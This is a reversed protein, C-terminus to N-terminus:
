NHCAGAGVGDIWDCAIGSAGYTSSRRCQAMGYNGELVATSPYGCYRYATTHNGNPYAVASGFDIEFAYTTAVTTAVSLRTSQNNAKTPWVVSANAGTQGTNDVMSPCTVQASTLNTTAGHGDILQFAGCLTEIKDRVANKSPAITTVGDWTSQDYATDSVTGSGFATFAGAGIKYGMVGNVEGIIWAYGTPTAITSTNAKGAIGYTGDTGETIGPTWTNTTTCLYEIKAQSDYYRSGATCTGPLTATNGTKQPITSDALSADLSDGSAATLANCNGSTCGWVDTIDGSGSGGSGIPPQIYGQGFALGPILLLFLIIIKKM